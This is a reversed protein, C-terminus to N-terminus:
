SERQAERYLQLWFTDWFDGGRLSEEWLFAQNLLESSKAGELWGDFIKACGIKEFHLGEQILTTSMEPYRTCLVRIADPCYFPKTEELDDFFAKLVEMPMKCVVEQGPTATVTIEGKLDEPYSITYGHENTWTRM